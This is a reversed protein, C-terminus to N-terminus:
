VQLVLIQVSQTETIQVWDIGLSLRVAYPNDFQDAGVSDRMFKGAESAYFSGPGKDVDRNFWQQMGPSLLMTNLTEELELYFLEARPRLNKADGTPDEFRKLKCKPCVENKHLTWEDPTSPLEGQAFMYGLEALHAKMVKADPTIAQM